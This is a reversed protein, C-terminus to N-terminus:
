LRQLSRYGSCLWHPRYSVSKTKICLMAGM